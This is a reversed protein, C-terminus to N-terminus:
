RKIGQRNKETFFQWAQMIDQDDLGKGKQENYFQSFYKPQGNVMMVFASFNTRYDNLDAIKSEADADRISIRNAISGLMQDFRAHSMAYNAIARNADSSKSLSPLYSQAFIADFDTQPGKNKRLEEAVLQNTAAILDQASTYKDLNIYGDLGAGELFTRVMQKNEAFKGTDTTDMANLVRSYSNAITNATKGAEVFQTRTDAIYGANQKALEEAMKQDGLNLEIGGGGIGTVKGTMTDLNYAKDAELGKIGYKAELDAGSGQVVSGYEGYIKMGEKADGTMAIYQAARKGAETGQGLLWEVTRNMKAKEAAAARAEQKNEAVARLHPHYSMGLLSDTFAQARDSTLADMLGGRSREQPSSIPKPGAMRVPAEPSPQAAPTMPQVSPAMPPKVDSAMSAPKPAPPLIGGAYKDQMQRIMELERMLKQEETEQTFNVPMYPNGYSTAM